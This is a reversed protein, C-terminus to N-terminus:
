ILRKVEGANVVLVGPQKGKDFSGLKDDMELAKAGNLTAWQLIEELPIAPFHERIATIEDWISLSWNSALSDTGLVIGCGNKRLMEVPPLADEIYRNANICLCFFTPPKLNSKAQIYDVDDQQTFTNHVLLISSASKLKDYYSQLSSKGSPRHHAHDINMMQYMRVFDGSNSRFLDDEFATEQNHISVVREEFFPTIAEWLEESVSYPAHPVISSPSAQSFADFYVKSRQLRQAAIAPMWGSAEIFNYYQLKGKVKQPLTLEINCIDGVAVIGNALMEQEGKEIAHLIEEDPFHRQTVVSFVFNVLGTREPIVGKLHSLELHCHCNIFGPSLWGQLRVVDEGADEARVVEEVIGNKDIILVYDGNLLSTGTFLQDARFKLYSM